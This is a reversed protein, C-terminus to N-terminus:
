AEALLDTIFAGVRRRQDTEDFLLLDRPVAVRRQEVDDRTIAEMLHALGDIYTESWPADGPVRWLWGADLDYALPIEGTVVPLAATLYESLKTTYRLAGVQDVSQPLSGIDMAALYTTVLEQPVPGPLIVRHGLDDGALSRLHELGTGGGVVLVRVDDRRVKRVARVLEAGYCFGVRANWNMAGLLGFVIADRPIGLEDRLEDRSRVIEPALTFNAATMARRAGMTLARGVLYPTWGIFGASWRYLLWEYLWGLPRVVPGHLALFPGVADGSSVVYRTGHRWRCLWLALAGATGTGEMVLLQPRREGVFRMLAPVNRLKRGRDFPFVDPRHDALLGLIRGEENSGAGKTAFCAIRSGRPLSSSDEPRAGDM